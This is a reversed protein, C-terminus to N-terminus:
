IIIRVNRCGNKAYFTIEVWHEKCLCKTEGLLRRWWWQEAFDNQNEQFFIILLITMYIWISTYLVQRFKSVETVESIEVDEEDENPESGLVIEM